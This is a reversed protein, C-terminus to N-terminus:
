GLLARWLVVADGLSAVGLCRVCFQSTCPWSSTICWIKMHSCRSCSVLSLFNKLPRRLSVYSSPGGDWGGRAAAESSRLLLTSWLSASALVVSAQLFSSAALGWAVGSSRGQVSSAWQVAAEVSGDGDEVMGEYWGWSLLLRGWLFLAEWQCGDHIFYLGCETGVGLASRDEYKKKRPFTRFFVKWWAPSSSSASSSQGPHFDQLGAGCDAWFHTGSFCAASNFETQSSFRSSWRKARCSCTCSHRPEAGCDAAIPFFLVHGDASRGATEGAAYRASCHAHPRWRALDQASRHGARSCASSACSTRFSNWWRCCLITSFLCWLSQTSLRSCPAGCIGNRRDPCPLSGTRGRGAPSKKLSVSSSRSPHPPTGSRLRTTWRAGGCGPGPQGRDEQPTTRLSPWPWLSPWGSTGCCPASGDSEADSHLEQVPSSASSWECCTVWFFHARKPYVAQHITPKKTRFSYNNNSPSVKGIKKKSKRRFIHIKTECGIFITVKRRFFRNSGFVPQQNEEPFLCMGFCFWPFRQPNQRFFNWCCRYVRSITWSKADSDLKKMKEIKWKKVKKWKKWKKIKIMKEM